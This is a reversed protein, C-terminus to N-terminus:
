PAVFRIPLSRQVELRQNNLTYGLKLNLQRDTPVVDGRVDLNIVLRNMGAPIAQPKPQVALNELGSVITVDIQGDFGFLRTLEIGIDTAKGIPCAIPEAPPDFKFPAELVRVRVLTSPVFTGLDRPQSGPKAQEILKDAQKIAEQVAAQEAARAPDAAIQQLTAKYAEARAIAQPNTAIKVKTEGQVWVSYEGVPTGPTIKLEVNAESKDANVVVEGMTMGPPLDRPRLVCNQDAGARRTLKVPVPLNAGRTTELTQGDGLQLSLPALDVDSVNLWLQTALRSTIRARNPANPRAITAPSVPLAPANADGRAHGVIQLAGDFVPADENAKLMLHTENQNGAIWAADCAVGAPLGEARVEIPEAFGDRRLAIVRVAAVGGRRLRLAQPRADNPERVVPAPYALLVYDPSPPRVHFRYPRQHETRPGTDADKLTVLYKGPAPPNFRLVPDRSRLRFAMDGLTPGDDQEAVLTRKPAQEPVEELREIRLVPDAIGNISQSVVEFVWEKGPEGQFEFQDRDNRTEFWGQLTVPPTIVQVAEPRAEQVTQPEGVPRESISQPSVTTLVQGPSAVVTKTNADLWRQVEQVEPRESSQNTVLLQFYFEEGGRYLQDFIAIHYSESQKPAIILSPDHLDTGTARQVEKGNADLLAIVPLMQSDLRAALCDVRLTQGASLSLQYFAIAAGNAKGIVHTDFPMPVPADTRNAAGSLPQHPLRSVFFARPNSTGHRGSARAEYIGTPVDGGITVQFQQSRNRRETAFPLPDDTKVTATIRPDSFLLRDM